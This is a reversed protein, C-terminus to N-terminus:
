LRWRSMASRESRSFSFFASMSLSFFAASFFGSSFFGSALDGAPCFGASFFGSSFFDSSFFGSSFGLGGCGGCPEMEFSPARNLAEEVSKPPASHLDCGGGKSNGRLEGRNASHGTESARLRLRGRGVGNGVRFYERERPALNVVTRDDNTISLNCCDAGGHIDGRPRLYDICFSQLNIWPNEIRDSLHPQPFDARDAGGNIRCFCSTVVRVYNCGRRHKWRALVNGDGACCAYRFTKRNGALAPKIGASSAVYDAPLGRRDMEGAPFDVLHEDLLARRHHEVPRLDFRSCEVEGSKRSFFFRIGFGLLLVVFVHVFEGLPHLAGPM